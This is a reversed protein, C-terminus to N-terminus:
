AIVSVGRIQRGTPINAAAKSRAPQGSSLENVSGPADGGTFSAVLEGGTIEPVGAPVAATPLSYENTGVALSASPSVRVNLM